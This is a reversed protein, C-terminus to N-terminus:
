RNNIRWVVILTIIQTIALGGFLLLILSLTQQIASLQASIENM